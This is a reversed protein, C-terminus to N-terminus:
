YIEVDMANSALKQELKNCHDGQACTDLFQRAEDIGHEDAHRMFSEVHDMTLWDSHAHDKLHAVVLNYKALPDGNKAAEQLWHVAEALEENSQAGALLHQSM